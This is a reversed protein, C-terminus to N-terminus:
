RVSLLSGNVELGRLRVEFGVLLGTDLEFYRAGGEVGEVELTKFAKYKVIRRVLGAASRWGPSREAPPLWLAGPELVGGLALPFEINESPELPLLQRDVKILREGHEAKVEVELFGAPRKHLIIRLPYAKSKGGAAETVGFVMRGGPQLPTDTPKLLDPLIFVAVFVAIAM